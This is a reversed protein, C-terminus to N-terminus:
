NEPRVRFIRMQKSHFWFEVKLEVNWEMFSELSLFFGLNPFRCNSCLSANDCLSYSNDGSSLKM